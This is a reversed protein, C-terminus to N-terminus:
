SGTSVDVDVQMRAVPIFFHPLCLPSILDEKRKKKGKGGREGPSQGFTFRATYVVELTGQFATNVRVWMLWRQKESMADDAVSQDDEGDRLKGLLEHLVPVGNISTCIISVDPVSMPPVASGSPMPFGFELWQSTGSVPTPLTLTGAYSCSREDETSLPSIKAVVWPIMAPSDNRSKGKRDQQNSRSSSPRPVPSTPRNNLPTLSEELKVPSIPQLPAVLIESYELGCKTQTGPPLVIKRSSRDKKDQSITSGGTGSNVLEVNAGDCQNRVFSSEEPQDCSTVRFM